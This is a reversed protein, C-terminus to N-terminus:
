LEVTYRKRNRQNQRYTQTDYNSDFVFKYKNNYVENIKGSISFVTFVM